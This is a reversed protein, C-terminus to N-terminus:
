HVPGGPPGFQPELALTGFTQEYQALNHGLLNMLAKAQQPSLYIGQFNYIKVEDPSEQHVTGFVLFFDWVSMHVRVSNAYSDRYTESYATTVTPPESSQKPQSMHTEICDPQRLYSTPAFPPVQVGV